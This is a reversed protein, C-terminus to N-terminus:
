NLHGRIPINKQAIKALEDMIQSKLQEPNVSSERKQTIAKSAIAVAIKIKTVKEFSDFNNVLYETCIKELNGDQINQYNTKRGSRGKVGAM